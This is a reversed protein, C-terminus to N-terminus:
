IMPPGIIPKIARFAETGMAIRTAATIKDGTM